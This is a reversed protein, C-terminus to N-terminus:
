FAEAVRVVDGSRAWALAHRLDGAGQESVRADMPRAPVAGRTEVLAPALLAYATLLTGAALIKVVDRM